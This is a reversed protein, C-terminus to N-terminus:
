SVQYGVACAIGIIRPKKPLMASIVLVVGVVIDGSMDAYPNNALVASALTSYASTVIGLHDLKEWFISEPWVHALTSFLHTTTAGACAILMATSMQVVGALGLLGGIGFLLAPVGHSWVNVVEYPDCFCSHWWPM